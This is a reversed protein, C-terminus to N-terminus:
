AAPSIYCWGCKPCCSELSAIPTKCQLCQIAKAPIVKAQVVTQPDAWYVGTFMSTKCNATITQGNRNRYTVEYLRDASRSLWEPGLPNWIIKIVAGGKREIEQRIRADDQNGALMRIVVAFAVFPVIIWIAEPGVSSSAFLEALLVTM